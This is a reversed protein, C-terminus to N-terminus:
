KRSILINFALTSLRYGGSGAPGSEILHKNGGADIIKGRLETIARQVSDPEPDAWIPGIRNDEGRWSEVAHLIEKSSIFKAGSVRRPSRLGALTLAHAILIMVVAFQPKSLRIVALGNILLLREMDGNIDGILEILDNTKYGGERSLHRTREIFDAFPNDESENM